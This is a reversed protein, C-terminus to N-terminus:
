CRFGDRTERTDMEALNRVLEWCLAYDSRSTALKLAARLVARYEATQKDTLTHSTVGSGEDQIGLRVRVPYAMGVGAYRGESSDGSAKGLRAGM